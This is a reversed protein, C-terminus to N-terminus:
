AVPAAGCTSPPSVGDLLGQMWTTVDAASTYGITDHPIGPYGKFNVPDGNKCMTAVLQNTTAPIVLEDAEGQAIFVPAGTKNAGATNRSLLETWPATSAPNAAYFSGILPNAITELQTAQAPIVDCLKVLEPIAAIGAPKVVTGLDLGPTSAGYVQTYANLAYAGLTVGDLTNADDTLLEGLEGAPAAAATGVLSLEPAYSSALQGAFLSAQGGQSHGWLLLKSGAGSDPIARAARAADLVGRGESEGILYPHVGPTGLGEYDTAAVVFGASLFGELGATLAPWLAIASPACDDAVGTTPHAWSLIPRGGAPAPATPAVVFGSVAIPQGDIGVSRYLVRWAQSGAPAGALPESRIVDGPKGEPLPSPPQYFASFAPNQGVVSGPTSGTTTGSGRGTASTTSTTGTAGTAGTAGTTGTSSCSALTVAVAAIGAITVSARPSRRNEITRRTIPRASM